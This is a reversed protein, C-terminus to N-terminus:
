TDESKEDENGIKGSKLWTSRDLLTVQQDSVLFDTPLPYKSRSLDQSEKHNSQEEEEELSVQVRPAEGWKVLLSDNTQSRRGM